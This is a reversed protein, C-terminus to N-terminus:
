EVVVEEMLRRYLKPHLRLHNLCRSSYIDFDKKNMFGHCVPNKEDIDEVYYLCQVCSDKRYCVSCCRQMNDLYGNFRSTVSGVSLDLRDEAVYGLSFRYDIKECQLIKGEVTVFMKKSFPLCTGTPICNSNNSNVFLDNYSRFVNGSYQHLYILLDHTSPENLFMEDSLEKYNESQHLSDYKNRYTKLFEEHKDPRVGSTRLESVRPTKDFSEQIYKIIREINNRNHLVANFNVNHKFYDSYKDKLLCVNGCVKDFSNKGYHDVRYSHGMRDGDLSILLHFNKGVLYDMYRDLLMANTTMSYVIKRNLTKNEFYNIVDDIFSRNLLPEGGYFSVYTIPSEADSVNSTWLSTLYELLPLVKNINLYSKGRETSTIYMDGYGCYKCCLNCDDTVEFTLQRLNILNRMIEKECIRRNNM